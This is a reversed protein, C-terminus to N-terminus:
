LKEVFDGIVTNKTDVGLNEGWPLRKVLKSSWMVVKNAYILM